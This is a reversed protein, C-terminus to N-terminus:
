REIHERPSVGTVKKFLRYFNSYDDFGLQACVNKPAIGEGLLKKAMAIKERTIYANITSGTVDKFLHCLYYKNIYFKKGIEELTIRRNMNEDIYNIIDNIKPNRRKDDDNQEADNTERKDVCAQLMKVICENIRFFADRVSDDAKIKVRQGSEFLSRFNHEPLNFVSPENPDFYICTGDREKNEVMSLVLFDDQLRLEYHESM